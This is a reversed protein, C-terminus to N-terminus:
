GPATFGGVENLGGSTDLGDTNNKSNLKAIYEMRFKPDLLTSKATNLKTRTENDGAQAYLKKWSDSIEDDTSSRTVGLLGFLRNEDGV